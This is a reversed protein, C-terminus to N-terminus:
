RGEPRMGVTIFQGNTFSLFEVQNGNGKEIVFPQVTCCVLVVIHSPQTLLQIPSATQTYTM